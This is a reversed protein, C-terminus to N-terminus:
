QMATSSAESSNETIQGISVTLQEVAAAMSATADAQETAAKSMEDSSTRVSASSETLSATSQRIGEILNRLNGIAKSLVVLLQDVEDKGKVDIRTDLRGEALATLHTSAVALKRKFMRSIATNLGLGIILALISIGATVWISRGYAAQAAAKREELLRYEEQEVEILEKRMSDMLPKGPRSQVELDFDAQTIFGQNLSKRSEILPDIVTDLWKKYHANFLRLRETVVANHATLEMAKQLQVRVKEKGDIYPALYAEDGRLLYGREGTEINLLSEKVGLVTEIVEHTFDNKANAQMIQQSNYIGLGGVLVGMLIVAILSASFKASITSLM